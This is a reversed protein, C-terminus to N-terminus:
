KLGFFRLVKEANKYLYIAAMATGWAELITLCIDFPIFYNVMGLIDYEDRFQLYGRFPSGPLLSLINMLSDNIFQVVRTLM